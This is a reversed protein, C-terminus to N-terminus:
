PPPLEAAKRRLVPEAARRAAAALLRRDLDLDTAAVSLSLGEIRGVLHGDVVVLKRNPDKRLGNLQDILNKRAGVTQFTTLAGKTKLHDGEAQQGAKILKEFSDVSRFVEFSLQPLRNYTPIVVSIKM